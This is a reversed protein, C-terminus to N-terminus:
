KSESFDNFKDYLNELSSYSRDLLEKLTDDKAIDYLDNEQTKIISIEYAMKNAYVRDLMGNIKAKFLEDSLEEKAAETQEQTNKDLSKIPDKITYKETLYNTLDSSTNSLVGYLSASSSRLDSSKINSQYETIVESTSVIHALAELSKRKEGGSNAKLISGIIALLFFIVVAVIGAWFLKSGLFQNSSGKPVVQRNGASIQDLYEQGNM